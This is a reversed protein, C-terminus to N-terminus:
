HHGSPQGPSGRRLYHVMPILDCLVQIGVQLYPLISYLSVRNGTGNRVHTFLQDPCLSPVHVAFLCL